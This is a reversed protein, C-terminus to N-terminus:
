QLFSITAACKFVRCPNFSHASFLKHVARCHQLASSFGVPISVHSDYRLRYHQIDRQLASSFGVPISVLTTAKPFWTLSYPQLASSFGVPISVHWTMAINERRDENCRVQFGSLSQFLFVIFRRRCWTLHQLASSFGVPISVSEPIPDLDIVITNCRVQFGSLSQFEAFGNLLAANLNPNCRM